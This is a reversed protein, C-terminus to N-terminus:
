PKRHRSWRVRWDLPDTRPIRALAQNLLRLVATAEFDDVRGHIRAAVRDRAAEVVARDGGAIALLKDIAAAGDGSRTFEAAQTVLDDPTLTPMM